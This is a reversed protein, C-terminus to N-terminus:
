DFAIRRFSGDRNRIMWPSDSVGSSAGYSVKTRPRSLYDPRVDFSGSAAELSGGASPATWSVYHVSCILFRCSKIFSM